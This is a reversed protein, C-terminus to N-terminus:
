GARRTTQGKGILASRARSSDGVKLVASLRVTVTEDGPALGELRNLLIEAARYGIDYAPQIVTTVSPLFLDDVTLEDFTVFGIDGPTSLGCDRLARLVGLGTPGNTCFIADPLSAKGALQVRCMAAVDEPRLNGQWNWEDRPILDARQLAQRYGLLRQRENKLSQPGTVVAIRRYGQAVLHNVGMAAASPDDISVNDM